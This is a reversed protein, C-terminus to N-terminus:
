KRLIFEKIDKLVAEKGKCNIIEHKLGPYVKIVIDSYGLRQLSNVTDTLGEDFGTVPDEKGTISLIQLEPNRCKYAHFRHLQADAEWITRVSANYYKYGSCLPDNRVKKLVDEDSSIWSDDDGDGLKMLIPHHGRKGNIAILINSLLLGVKVSNQFNATGSLILKDVEADHEQLYCRAIVSGFSHGFLVLPIGSFSKKIYNTVLIQDQVLRKWSDMYGLPYKQNISIGHGRIDSIITTVGFEALWEAFEFYREKHEKAGHIIQLLYQTNNAKIVEVSLPLGDDSAITLGM